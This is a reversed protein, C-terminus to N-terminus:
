RRRASAPLSSSTTTGGGGSDGAASLAKVYDKKVARGGKGSGKVEVARDSVLTRLEAVTMADYDLVLSGDVEVEADDAGVIVDEEVPFAAPGPTHAARIRERREQREQEAKEYRNM